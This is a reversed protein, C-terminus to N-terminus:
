WEGQDKKCERWTERELGGGKYEGKSEKIGKRGNPEDEAGGPNIKRRRRWEVSIM